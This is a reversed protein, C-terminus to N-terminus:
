SGSEKLEIFILEEEKKAVIVGNKMLELIALFTVIWEQKSQTELFLIHFPMTRNKSLGQKIFMIKDSVRWEEEFIVKTDGAKKKMLDGFLASLDELSLHELGLPKPREQHAIAGRTFLFSLQKDKVSLAEGAKKFKIYEILAKIAEQKNKSAGQEEELEEDDPLLCRSKLLLLSSASLIFEAGFSIDEYGQTRYQELVSLMSIGEADIEKEQILSLLLEIPGVFEPFKLYFEHKKMM